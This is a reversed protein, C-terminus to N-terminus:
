GSQQCTCGPPPTSAQHWYAGGISGVPCLKGGAIARSGPLVGQAMAINGLAGLSLAELKRHQIRRSQELAEEALRRAQSHEGRHFHLASLHSRLVIRNRWAEPEPSHGQSWFCNAISEIAVNYAAVLEEWYGRADLFDDTAQVIAAVSSWIELDGCLGIATFINGIEEALTTFNQEHTQAYALYYDALRRASQEYVGKARTHKRM